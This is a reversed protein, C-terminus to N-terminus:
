NLKIEPMWNKFRNSLESYVELSDFEGHTTRIYPNKSIYDLLNHMQYGAKKNADVFTLKLEPNKINIQGQKKEIDLSLAGGIQRYLGKQGSYFNGLSYICFTKKGRSNIIWEAPQLVHPHHGIIIDAGADSVSASIEKQSSVPLLPYERGYHLSVVVVDPNEEKKLREIAQRVFKTQGKVIRNLLYNKGKPPNKGLTVATYSLFGVKIGKREIIRHRKADKKSKHSGVYELNIKELNELSKLVGAEGLDMTHNNSNSVIDTGFEKLNEALEVPNNFEPFSSLGMEEGAVLSELNVISIDGSSLINKAPKLKDRFDYKGDSTKSINYIRDHLLVDGTAVLKITSM